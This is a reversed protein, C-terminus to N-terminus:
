NQNESSANDPRENQISYLQKEYVMLQQNMEQMKDLLEIRSAEQIKTAM